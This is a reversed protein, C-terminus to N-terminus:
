RGVREGCIRAFGDCCLGACCLVVRVLHQAEGASLRAGGGVGSWGM